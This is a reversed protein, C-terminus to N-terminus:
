IRGTGPKKICLDLPVGAECSGATQESEARAGAVATSDEVLGVCVDREEVVTATPILGPPPALPPIPRASVHGQQALPEPNSDLPLLM